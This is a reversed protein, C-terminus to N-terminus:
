FTQKTFNHVGGRFGVGEFDSEVVLVFLVKSFATNLNLYSKRFWGSLLLLLSYRSCYIAQFKCLFLCYIKM